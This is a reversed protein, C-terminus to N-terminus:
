PAGKSRLEDTQIASWEARAVMVGDALCPTQEDLPGIPQGASSWSLARM